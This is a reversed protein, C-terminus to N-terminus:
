ALHHSLLVKRKDEVRYANSHKKSLFTSTGHLIQKNFHKLLIRKFASIRRDNEVIFNMFSENLSLVCSHPTPRVLFYYIVSSHELGNRELRKSIILLYIYQLWRLYGLPLPLKSKSLCKEERVAIVNLAPFVLMVTM